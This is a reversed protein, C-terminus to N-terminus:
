KQKLGVDPSLSTQKNSVDVLVIVLLASLPSQSLLFFFRSHALSPWLEM